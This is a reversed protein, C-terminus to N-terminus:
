LLVAHGAALGARGSVLPREQVGLTYRSFPAQEIAIHPQERLPATIPPEVTPVPPAEVTNEVIDCADPAGAVTSVDRGRSSRRAHAALMETQLELFQAMVSQFDLLVGAVPDVLPYKMNRDGM